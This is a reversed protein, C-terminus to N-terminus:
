AYGFSEVHLIVNPGGKLSAAPSGVPFNLASRCARSIAQSGCVSVSLRGSVAAVEDRLLAHLDPRGSSVQVASFDLLSIVASSKEGSHADSGGEHISDDDFARQNTVPLPEGSTVYIRVSIDLFPPALELAQQLAKSVWDIHSSDRIAWIWVLKRCASKGARVDNVVGLFTSLTYTVGSGGAVLVVEDDDKLNPTLGYPGDVLVKVKEGKQAREALRKTFGGRVNVLFVLERWYPECSFESKTKAKEKELDTSADALEAAPTEVSAITFPHAETPLRSVGPMVIYATQGPSWHFHPPRALRLRVFHPSLLEVTADLSDRKGGFWFYRYNFVIVRMVRIFRDLAWILFSPWIYYGMKEERAHFYGGLLLILVSLFHVIFFFEYARARVPQLSIFCLISFAVMATLGVPIFYFPYKSWNLRRSQLRLCDEQMFETDMSTGRNGGHVWLLVFVVRASMRHVYNLQAEDSYTYHSSNIFEWIFLGIIYACTVFVEALNLTYWSGIHLTWRFAIIRYTNIIARPIHRISFRRPAPQAGSEADGNSKSGFKRGLKLAVWSGFQFLAVTAIFCAVFWWMEEPYRKARFVRLTKDTAAKTAKALPATATMTAAM